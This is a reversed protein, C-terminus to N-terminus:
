AIPRGGIRAPWRMIEGRQVSCLVTETFSNISVYKSFFRELVAGLLFASSGEFATEDCTLTIELGRGFTTPGTVPLRRVIPASSVSQVGAIQHKVAADSSMNGYLGLLARLGAAGEGETNTLSLHNLSLHSILRWSNGGWAQSPRPPTPGVLCRVSEVPAGTELSFDTRGSGMPMHLPLDRNTCLLDVALQKLDSKYPGEAADVLGLFVESGVYDSRPGSRRQRATTVTPQRHVTYYAGDEPALAREALSYFPRFERRIETSAGFGEAGRVSHVELDAPRTRDPVVHYEHTTDSLHIRDAKHPFLNIAPTCFLALHKPAIAAEVDPAHRDLLLAVELENGQCRRVGNALGSLEAFLFRSPAAFYEQLLRYGRFSRPTFPLLAEDDEFGVTRVAPGDTVQQWDSGPDRLVSTITGAHILEFLRMAIQHPGHIFIPLRDLAIREFPVGATSRLRIRLVARPRRPTRLPLNGLPGLHASHSVSAIELPWLTLDHGTRYICPTQEGRGVNSRLTTDRPVNFGETLVGQKPDPTVQVVAISPMPALYHPYLMELLHETFRPFESDIKLQVRAALFAFGELLREVYPDHCEVTELGIRSAIKPFRKAFEGGLERLYQLERNYYQLLRPNM